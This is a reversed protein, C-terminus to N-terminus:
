LFYINKIIKKMEELSIAGNLYYTSDSYEIQAVYSELEMEDNANGLKAEIKQADTFTSGLDSPNDLSYYFVGEDSNKVMTIRFIKEEYSYFMTAYWNEKDIECNLYEMGEPLYGFDIEAIGLENSVKHFDELEEKDRSRMIRDEDVYDAAMRLGFNATITDWAQSVLRRNAESTMSVGFVIVLAAAVTGGRRVVRGMTKQRKMKKQRLEEQEQAVRRGTEMALRDEEPLMAYLAELDPKQEQATQETQATEASATIQVVEEAVVSGSHEKELRVSNDAETDLHVDDEEWLGKEKLEGVIKLFLDDSAGVGMLDPDSNLQAELEDAERMLDEKLLAELEEDMGDLLDRNEFKLPIIKNDKKQNKKKESM